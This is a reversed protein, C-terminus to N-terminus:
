CSSLRVRFFNAETLCIFCRARRIRTSCAADWCLCLYQVAVEGARFTGSTVDAAGKAWLDAMVPVGLQAVWVDTTHLMFDEYPLLALGKKGWNSGWSNQIVFGNSTYGVLAIAQGGDAKGKRQIVPLTKYPSSSNFSNLTIMDPGPAEWGAHVM